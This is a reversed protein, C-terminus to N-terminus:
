IIFGPILSLYAYVADAIRKARTFTFNCNDPKLSRYLSREMAGRYLVNGVGVENDWFNSIAEDIDNNSIEFLTDLHLAHLVNMVGCHHDTYPWRQAEKYCVRRVHADYIIQKLQSSKKLRVIKKM